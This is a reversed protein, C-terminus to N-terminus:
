ALRRLQLTWATARATAQKVQPDWRLEQDVLVGLFRHSSSPKILTHGLTLNPRPAPCSTGPRTPDPERRRSFDVVAFKTLEFHSNHMRSWDTAGGSRDMMDQLTSHTEEFTKGIAMFAVDDM